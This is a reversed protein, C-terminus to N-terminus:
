PMLRDLKGMTIWYLLRSRGSTRGDLLQIRRHIGPLDGEVLRDRRGAVAHQFGEGGNGFLHELVHLLCGSCCLKVSPSMRPVPSFFGSGGASRLGCIGGCSGDIGPAGMASALGSIAASSFATSAPIFTSRPFGNISSLWVDDQGEIDGAPVPIVLKLEADRDVHLRRHCFPELDRHLVVLFSGQVKCILPNM